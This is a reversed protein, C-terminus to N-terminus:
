GFYTVEVFLFSVILLGFCTALFVPVELFLKFHVLVTLQYAINPMYKNYFSYLNVPMTPKINGDVERHVWSRCDNINQWM